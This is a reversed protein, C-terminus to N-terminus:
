KLMNYAAELGPPLNLEQVTVLGLRLATLSDVPVVISDSGASRFTGTRTFSIGNFDLQIGTAHGTFIVYKVPM